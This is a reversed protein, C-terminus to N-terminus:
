RNTCLLFFIVVLCVIIPNTHFIYYIHTVQHHFVRSYHLLYVSSLCFYLIHPVSEKRLHYSQVIYM